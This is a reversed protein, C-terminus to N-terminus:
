KPRDLGLDRLLPAWDEKSRKIWSSLASSGKDFVPNIMGRLESSLAYGAALTPNTALAALVNARVETNREVVGEKETEAYYSEQISRAVMQRIEKRNLKKM